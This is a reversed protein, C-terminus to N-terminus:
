DGVDGNGSISIQELIDPNFLPIMDTCLHPGVLRIYQVTFVYMDEVVVYGINGPFDQPSVYLLNM